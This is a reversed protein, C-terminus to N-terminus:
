PTSSSWASVDGSEFGDAFLGPEFRLGLADLAFDFDTDDVTFPGVTFDCLVSQAAAPAFLPELVDVWAGGEDEVIGGLTTSGLSAGDCAPADFFQCTTSFDVVSGTIPQYRFSAELSHELGGQVGVCQAIASEPLGAQAVVASASLPSGAVDDTGAAGTAIESPLSSATVWPALTTPCDDFHGNEFLNGPDARLLPVVFDTGPTADGDGDLANGVGDTITDCVFFRYLGPALGDGGAVTARAVVALPDSDDVTVGSVGVEIDDGAAGGACAATTFDGDPGAEVLLYSGALDADVIPTLADTITAVFRSFPLRVTDCDGLPGAVTAIASVVPPEVDFTVDTEETDSDNGPVPDTTDSAVTATNVIPDPGAYDLPLEFTVTIAVEEGPALDGLDCPFGGACPADASDFVLGAPTPDDLMVAVANSPGHNTVLLESDFTAGVSATEPGEKEVGLDAESDVTTDATASDNAANPDTENAAVTATNSIPATRAPDVTVDFSVLQDAGVALAGIACTVTGGAESCDASSDFTVGPPLVDTVTGGTSDSPGDNTVTITYGLTEGAVVPDPSDDKAIGLDTEPTLVTDDDTSSDNAANPDSVSGSITATNSLTGTADSDIDCTVTYTVSSGVPLSLTETLNGAGAATNGTAGGAAVSTFSCTLVAPFTDTLSVSPDDSPGANSAVITYVVEEGPVASTVGDSKTVALDAVPVLVTDGDTASNNGPITDTVSATVTATNSLTGTADSDIDCTVTYTVSSGAPMSLTEALAGAGAATNGSAGGAAVSTYTCTLPPSPFVDTLGVAPDASPGANAAVITYVVSGGPTATTVGDTKTVSLDASPDVTLTDTATGSDGSTSTLNGTTNVHMGSTISTVDVDITCSAGAGVSGGSLMITGSGAAATLTGGCSNSTNAPTTVVVGAPLTDTFALEDAALASASNDLTFRLTSVAGALITDPDFVKAFTPPPEIVLDATAPEALALGASFLDSTVNPFTGATAAAPVLVEVDFMCTGMADLQGGSFTLFGIGSISSGAGCPVAPLSTAILGPIVANLDDTFQLGSATDTGPNTITFTLIASGTATTPGDFSKSFDLTQIVELADTAAQGTVPFGGITGVLPSTTNLYAGASADAPVALSVRITCSGGAALSAGDVTITGSGSGTVMGGCDNFLVSDFELDTLAADVDDTFDVDAAAQDTELNTLVLELTVLDGPAAPDDTFTKALSLRDSEVILDDIAALESAPDGGLMYSLSSSQNQYVGDSATDPVTVEVDLTCSVGAALTGGSYTLFSGTGPITVVSLMGGCDDALAPDTAVLSAVSFLSDTFGIDTAAGASINELDFRLVLVEGPYAADDLFEKRFTIGGVELDSTAAPSTTSVGSVTAGVTSTTNVYTGSDAGGPVDLTLSFTCEEGPMLTAGSFTLLTDGASGTLMGDGAPCLGTLPLEGAAAALGPLTGGAGGIDDTFGIATAPAPSNPSLSLVFELDVTGGPAVPDDVFDKQLDPAAVVSLTDSAPRGLRTAGDVTATPEETTNTYLGPPMDAPLTLTVDFTCTAAAGPAPGLSGGTLELAQRDTDPFAIGLSSGPGCPPDPVPPLTAGVPFPLFGTGPGGDTLEDLFEVDLAGSTTSTNTVTFRLIVSEGPAVVPDPALTGVELFEKTLLPIPEVFLDDAAADGVVPSGDITGTVASTTNTYSGPTAGGPVSLSVRLTCTGEPAVTGGTLDLTTGGIGSISGGCDNSLLSVFTLGPLPPVLTALDDTFAVGTAPFDRDFNTITFELTAANGPPTPDDTFAKQLALPTVTVTLTDSARGAFTFDALLDETVNDLMGTGTGVVDVAVTCTAGAPLVEFGPFFTSGDANLVIEGTGPVATLVTDPAGSSVCDTAANAPAAVVVGSPLDDVFDLNGVPSANLTNDIVFTLTSREGLAISSPAFSKSFGPLGTDVTLDRPLSMSSGASSSLTVAPNTHPGPTAATVDVNVTCSAFGGIRAGGLTITSGGDPATLTGGGTLDCSTSANAPDAITMPGPVVPLVDTFALDTVPSGSGNTITFTITSVSGPGITSPTFVKSLTPQAAALAPLTAALTAAFLLPRSARTTPLM